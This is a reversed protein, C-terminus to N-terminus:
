FRQSFSQCIRQIMTQYHMPDGVPLSPPIPAVITPLHMSAYKKKQPHVVLNDHEVVIVGMAELGPADTERHRLPIARFLGVADAAVQRATKQTTSHKTIDRRDRLPSYFLESSNVVLFAGAVTKPDYQHAYNHFAEFDRLRNRRAKRLM